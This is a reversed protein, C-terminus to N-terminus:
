LESMSKTDDLPIGAVVENWYREALVLAQDYTVVHGSIAASSLLTIIFNRKFSFEDGETFLPKEM